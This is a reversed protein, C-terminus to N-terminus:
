KILEELKRRTGAVERISLSKRYCEIASEKNKIASYYDGYSDWANFSEPYNEVNMKFFAAAKDFQQMGLFQYGLGNVEPEKPKVEYGFLASVDEKYHKQISDALNVNPDFFYNIAMRFRYRDFIFRLADYTGILPTSGHDDNEYFKSRYRLGNGERSKIYDNMDLISRIHATEFSTDTRVSMINMGGSMTNAIALYLAKQNFRKQDIAQEVSKLYNGNDWWMSPDLCIYANFLDPHHILTHIGILGGLSHGILLRFPQTPYASDIHPILEQEIFSLFNEGGGTVSAFASDAFPPSPEIHTPSLDRNRNRNPIGVVIMEPCITNGNVQSLQQIMGVVSYFHADGDLLYVVPYRQQAYIGPQSGAPTYVWIKRQQDLIKSQVSDITGIVIKNDNQVYAPNYVCLAILGFVIKKM